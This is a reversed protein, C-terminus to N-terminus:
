LLKRMFEFSKKTTDSMQLYNLTSLDKENMLTKTLEFFLKEQDLIPQM